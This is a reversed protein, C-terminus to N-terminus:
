RRSKTFCHGPRTVSVLFRHRTHGSTQGTFSSPHQGSTFNSRKFISSLTVSFLLVFSFNRSYLCYRYRAIVQRWVPPHPVTSANLTEQSIHSCGGAGGCFLPFSKTAAATRIVLDGTHVLPPFSWRLCLVRPCSPEETWQIWTRWLLIVMLYPPLPSGFGASCVLCGWVCVPCWGAGAPWRRIIFSLTFHCIM